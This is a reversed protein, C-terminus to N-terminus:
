HRNLRADSVARSIAAASMREIELYARAVRDAQGRDPEKAVMVDAIGAVTPSAFFDSLALNWPFIRNLNSVIKSSILSDGGLDFFNDHTGITDIGLAESWAKAIVGEIPTHPEAYSSRLRPRTKPVLPLAQRNVKGNALLPLSTLDVFTTPIMYDPLWEKLLERLESVTPAPTRHTVVYAVLRDDGYSDKRAAVAAQAIQPIKSLALEVEETQISHGRIKLKFDKRGLYELCGDPRLRGL